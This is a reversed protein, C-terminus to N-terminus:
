RTRHLHAQHPTFTGKSTFVYRARYLQLQRQIFTGKATYIYMKCYLHVKATYVYRTRYLHLQRQIFTIPSTYIYRIRHFHAQRPVFIGPATCVCRASHLHVQHPIFTGLATLVHSIRYSRVVSHKTPYTGFYVPLYKSPVCGVSTGCETVNPATCVYGARYSIYRTRYSLVQQPTFGGVVTRHWHM